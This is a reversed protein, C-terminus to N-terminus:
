SVPLSLLGCLWVQEKRTDESQSQHSGSRAQGDRGGPESDQTSSHQYLPLGAGKRAGMGGTCIYNLHGLLILIIKYRMMTLIEIQLMMASM